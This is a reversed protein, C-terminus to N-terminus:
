PAAGSPASCSWLSDFRRLSDRKPIRVTELWRLRRFVTRWGFGLKAAVEEATAGESMWKKARTADRYDDIERASPIGLVDRLGALNSVIEHPGLDPVLDHMAFFTVERPKTLFRVRGVVQVAPDVELKRLYINGLYHVDVDSGVRRRISVRRVLDPGCDVGLEVRFRAAEAEQVARNLEKEPVYYSNLCYASEYAAFDNVGVIGYHLIPIVLPDPTKPLHEYADTVITASLGWRALRDTLYKACFKERDKRSVLLSSRGELINRALASAFTDLIETHNGLFHRHAGLRSRLNVIRTQSHRVQTSEHPSAIPGTGLRHGAYQASLHASLILVHCGLYPRAVFRVDGAADIRREDRRSWRLQLLDYGLYRFEDGFKRVGLAQIAYARRNISTPLDPSVVALDDGNSDLIWEITTIWKSAVRPPLRRRDALERLVDRFRELEEMSICIEFNADLLKAEDLIVLPRKAGTRSLLFSLLSRNVLFNAETAFVLRVGRLSKFQDPWPCRNSAVVGRQCPKCLTAKGLASCGRRELRSWDADYVGCNEVPRPHLVIHAVPPREVGAAIPRENLVNRTPASYVVLDFRDHTRPDRLLADAASSKGVGVPIKILVRVNQEVHDLLAAPSLEQDRFSQLEHETVIV